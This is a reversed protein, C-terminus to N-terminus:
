KYRVIYDNNEDLFQQIKPIDQIYGYEESGEILGPKNERKFGKIKIQTKGAVFDQARLLNIGWSGKGDPKFLIGGFHVWDGFRANESSGKICHAIESRGFTLRGTREAHAMVRLLSRVMSTNLSIEYTNITAGCCECTEKNIVKQGMNSRENHKNEVKALIINCKTESTL